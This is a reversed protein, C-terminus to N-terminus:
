LVQELTSLKGQRDQAVLVLKSGKVQPNAVTIVFRWKAENAVAKGSEIVVGAANLISVNLDVIKFPVKATITILDGVNGYYEDAFVSKLEPLTLYDTMAALYSSKLGLQEAM